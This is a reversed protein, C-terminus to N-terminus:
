LIKYIFPKYINLARFGHAQMLGSSLPKFIKCEREVAAHGSRGGSASLISSNSAAPFHL